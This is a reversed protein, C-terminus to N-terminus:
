SGSRLENRISMLMKGITNFEVNSREVWYWECNSDTVLTADGTALLREQLVPHQVFKALLASRMISDCRSAWAASPRKREKPILELADQVSGAMRMRGRLEPDSVKQAHFYHESSLWKEGDIEVSILARPLFDEYERTGLWIFSAGRGDMPGAPNLLSLYEEPYKWKMALDYATKGEQNRIGLDAKASVLAHFIPFEIDPRFEDSFFIRHLPTNGEQDQVNTSAGARLLLHISEGMGGRVAEHLPTLGTANKVDVPLGLPLLVELDKPWPAAAHLVSNGEADRASADAGQEILFRVMDAHGNDATLMLVSKGEETVQNVDGGRGILWKVVEMQGNPAYRSLCGSPDFQAGARCLQEAVDVKSYSLAETVFDGGGGDGDAERHPTAGHQLLLDAM